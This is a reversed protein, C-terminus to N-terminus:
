RGTAARRVIMGRGGYFRELTPTPLCVDAQGGAGGSPNHLWVGHDDHGHLLVLHGGRRPQAAHPERVNSGVSAIAMSHRDIARYLAPLPADGLVEVHLGFDAALWASFPEYVLGHVSGDDRLRYAGRELARELLARRAPRPLRWHALMSELCALGCLRRAWFRYHAPDDFGGDRWSPDACPDAGCEVVAVAHAPDSWQSFYPVGVHRYGM